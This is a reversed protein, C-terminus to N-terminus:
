ITVQNILYNPLNGKKQIFFHTGTNQLYFDSAEVLGFGEPRIFMGPM